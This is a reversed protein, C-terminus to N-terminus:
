NVVRQKKTRGPRKPILKQIGLAAGLISRFEGLAGLIAKESRSRKGSMPTTGLSRFGKGKFGLIGMPAVLRKPFVMEQAAFGPFAPSSRKLLVM